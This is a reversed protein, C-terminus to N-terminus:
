KFMALSAPDDPEADFVGGAALDGIMRKLSRAPYPRGAKPYAKAYDSATDIQDSTLGPYDEGIEGAASSKALAAVAYVPIDTGKLVPERDAGADVGSKLAALRAFRESLERDVPEFELILGGLQLRHADGALHKIARYIRKRGTPTLDRDLFSTVKLFRLEARGIVRQRSKGVGSIRAEIVGRDIARNLSKSSQDLLYGAEAVTLNADPPTM